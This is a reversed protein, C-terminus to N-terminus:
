ILFLEFMRSAFGPNCLMFHLWFCRCVIHQTTWARQETIHWIVKRKFLANNWPLVESFLLEAKSACIDASIARQKCSSIHLLAIVANENQGEKAIWITTWTTQWYVDTIDMYTNNKLISWVFFGGALTTRIVTFSIPSYCRHLDTRTM